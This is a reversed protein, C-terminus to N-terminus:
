LTALAGLPVRSDRARRWQLSDVRYMHIYQHEDHIGKGTEKLRVFSGFLIIIIM